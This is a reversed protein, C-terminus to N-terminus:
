EGVTGPISLDILLEVQINEQNRPLYFYLLVKIARKRKNKKTDSM